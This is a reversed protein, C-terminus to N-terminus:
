REKGGLERLFALGTHEDYVPIGRARLMEAFVGDGAVLTRSFTGDYIKGSGCSPSKAKLIAGDVPGEELRRLCRESGLVFERTRDIGEKDIVRDGRRESPTRPTPLGGEVEPCVAVAEHERLLGVLESQLNDRGDYRCATGLLCASVLFRM